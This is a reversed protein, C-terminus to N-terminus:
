SCHMHSQTHKITRYTM